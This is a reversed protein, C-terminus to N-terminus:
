FPFNLPNIPRFDQYKNGRSYETGLGLNEDWDVLRVAYTITIDPVDM